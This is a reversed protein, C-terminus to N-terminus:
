SISEPTALPLSIHGFQIEVAGDLDGARYCDLMAFHDAVAQRRLEPHLRQAQAVFVGGAEELALLVGALRKTGTARHFISHFASNKLVWSGLDEEHALEEALGAAEEMEVPTINAMAKEIAVRELARRVEVIEVMEDWDPTRVTGIRHSDLTILGESALDRMAERVPTTSVNLQNAIDTQVLRSGGPLDGRIIGARLVDRVLEVATVRKRQSANLRMGETVLTTPQTDTQGNTVTSQKEAAM